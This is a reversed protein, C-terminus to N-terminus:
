SLEKHVIVCMEYGDLSLQGTFHTMESSQANLLYTNSDFELQCEIATDEENHIIFWDFGQKRIHRIRLGEADINRFPSSPLVSKLQDISSDSNHGWHIIEIQGDLTKLLEQTESPLDSDVILVQYAQNAIHLRNDTITCQALDVIDLYNFDIQNQFCAKAARWPLNHHEGLIAVHCILQSDTNLWSLRRCASAFGTFTTNWWPSNLGVDPPREDKRPGRLSYYFAHPILLNCGRVLLWNALWEMEEFTFDHGYAGCFENANRRGQSHLMVSSAAKAQTSQRGELASPRDPEIYRWVIDQAPMQFYRLHRTADPEAPHGTLAINHAECWNSLQAYYTEEFHHEIAQRSFRQFSQVM